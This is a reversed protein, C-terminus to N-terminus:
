LTNRSVKCSSCYISPSCLPNDSVSSIAM